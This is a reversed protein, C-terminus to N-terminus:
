AERYRERIGEAQVQIAKKKPESIRVLNRVQMIMRPNGALMKEHRM